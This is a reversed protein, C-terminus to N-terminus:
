AVPNSGAYDKIDQTLEEGTLAFYLNQLQHVHQILAPNNFINENRIIWVVGNDPNIQLYSGGVSIHYFNFNDKIQSFGFKILGEETLPVQHLHTADYACHIKGGNLGDGAIGYEGISTVRFLSGGYKLINGIRLEAKM